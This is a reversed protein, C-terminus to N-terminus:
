IRMPQPRPATVAARDIAPRIRQFPPLEPRQIREPSARRDIEGDAAQQEDPLESSDSLHDVVQYLEPRETSDAEDLSDPAAQRAPTIVTEQALAETDIVDPLEPVTLNIELPAQEVTTQEALDLMRRTHPPLEASDPDFIRLADPDAQETDPQRFPDQPLPTRQLEIAPAMADPAGVALQDQRQMWPAPWAERSQLPETTEPQPEIPSRSGPDSSDSETDDTDIGGLFPSPSGTGGLGSDGFQGTKGTGGMGSGQDDGGPIARLVGVSQTAIILSCAFLLLAALLAVPYHRLALIAKAM